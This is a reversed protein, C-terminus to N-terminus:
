LEVEGKYVLATLGELYVNKFIKKKEMAEVQLHIQLHGGKTTISISQAGEDVNMLAFYAIAAATAGTGCSFTEDEVGREYTRVQLGAETIQVFDVNIGEPFDKSFRIKRGLTIVDVSEVDEVFCVYHPSGTDIVFVKGKKTYTNVNKMQLRVLSQPFFESVLEAEHVGDNANFRVSKKFIKLHYALSVICRGGNGCMSGELGDANFYRMNFVQKEDNELLMLGDAGIGFRRNCFHAIQMTNLFSYLSKRNDIIIFDNGAGQYKYFPIRIPASKSM